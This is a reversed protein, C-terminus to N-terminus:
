QREDNMAGVMEDDLNLGTATRPPDCNILEKEFQALVREDCTQPSLTAVLVMVPVSLCDDM